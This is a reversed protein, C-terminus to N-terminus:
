IWYLETWEIMRVNTWIYLWKNLKDYFKNKENLYNSKNTENKSMITMIEDYNKRRQIQIQTVFHIRHM